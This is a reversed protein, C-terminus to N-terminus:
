QPIVFLAARSNRLIGAQRRLHEELQSLRVPPYMPVPVGGALLVAFFVEFFDRGTPLMIGVFEGPELGWAHMAGSLRTAAGYLEGYTITETESYGDSLLIHPRDKNHRVHWNLLGTLTSEDDPLEEVTTQSLLDSRQTVLSGASSERGVIATALDHPTELRGYLDDPLRIKFEKETRMLLEALVLSDFGLDRQLSSNPKAKLKRNPNVDHGLAEVLKIVRQEVSAKDDPEVNIKHQSKDVM